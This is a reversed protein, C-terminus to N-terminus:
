AFNGEVQFGSLFIEAHGTLIVNWEPAPTLLGPRRALHGAARKQLFPKVPVRWVWEDM